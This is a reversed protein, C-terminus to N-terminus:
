EIRFVSSVATALKNGLADKFVVKLKVNKPKAPSPVNWNFSTLPNVMTGAAKKWIGSTGFTYSVNAKSVDGSIGNTTWTVPYAITGKPVIGGKIPTAISAVEGTEQFNDGYLQGSTVRDAQQSYGFVYAVFRDTDKLGWNRTGNIGGTGAVGFSGFEIWQYGDSPDTDYYMTFVKTTSDFAMRIAGYNYPGYTVAYDAGSIRRGGYFEAWFEGDQGLEVEIEDNPLRVSRVNIGFSSYSGTSITNTVDIQVEWNANYPFQSTRWKRDVSDHSATGIGTTTYELRQNAEKLVGKGDVEDAGWKMSDKSNDNFDDGATAFAKGPFPIGSTSGILLILIFYGLFCKRSIDLNKM